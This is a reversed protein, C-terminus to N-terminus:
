NNPLSGSLCPQILSYRTVSQFFRGGEDSQLCSSRTVSAPSSLQSLLFSQIQCAPVRPAEVANTQLSPGFQVGERYGPEARRSLLLHLLGQRVQCVLVVLGEPGHQFLPQDWAPIERGNVRVGVGLYRVGEKRNVLSGADFTWGELGLIPKPTTIQRAASRWATLRELLRDIPLDGADPDSRYSMHLLTGFENPSSEPQFAADEGALLEWDGCVIVSRADTNVTFDLGLAKQLIRWPVWRWLPGPNGTSKLDVERMINRNYKGLFRTGQESQLTDSAIPANPDRFWELFPTAAGGHIRMFNSETAQVTPALQTTGINGPEAKAQALVVTERAIRATLFGLIGIEPQLILAQDGWPSDKGQGTCSAGVVSFFRGTEHELTRESMRWSPLRDLPLFTLRLDARVRCESIWDLLSQVDPHPLVGSEPKLSRM